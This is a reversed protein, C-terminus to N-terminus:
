HRRDFMERQPSERVGVQRIVAVMAPPHIVITNDVTQLLFGSEIMEYFKKNLDECSTPIDIVDVSGCDIVKKLLDWVECHRNNNHLDHSHLLASGAGWMMREISDTSMGSELGKLTISMASPMGSVCTEYFSYGVGLADAAATNNVMQPISHASKLLDPRINVLATFTKGYPIVVVVTVSKCRKSWDCIAAISEPSSINHVDDLVIVPRQRGTNNYFLQSIDDFESEFDDWSGCCDNPLNFESALLQHIEVGPNRPISITVHPNTLTKLITTVMFTKGVGSHGTVIHISNNETLSDLVAIRSDRRQSDCLQEIIPNAVLPQAVDGFRLLVSRSEMELRCRRGIVAGCIAIITNSIESSRQQKLLEIAMEEEQQRRIKMSYSHCTGAVVAVSGISTTVLLLNNM